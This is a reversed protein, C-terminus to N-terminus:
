REVELMLAHITPGYTTSPRAYRLQVWGNDTLAVAAFVNRALKPFVERGRENLVVYVGASGERIGALAEPQDLLTVVM